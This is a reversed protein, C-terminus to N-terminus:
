WSLRDSIMCTIITVPDTVMTIVCLLSVQKGSKRWAQIFQDVIAGDEFM